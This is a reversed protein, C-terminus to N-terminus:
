LPIVEARSVAKEVLEEIIHINGDNTLTDYIEDAKIMTPAGGQDKPKNIFNHMELYEVLLDHETQVAEAEDTATQNDTEADNTNGGCAAFLFMAFALILLLQHNLKKM